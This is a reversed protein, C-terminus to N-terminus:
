LRNGVQRARGNAPSYEACGKVEKKEIKESDGGNRNEKLSEHDTGDAQVSSVTNGTSDAM